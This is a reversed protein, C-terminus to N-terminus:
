NGSHYLMKSAAAYMVPSSKITHKVALKAAELREAVRGRASMSFSGSYLRTEQDCWDFKYAEDGVTFDLQECDHSISWDFAECLALLGPSTQAFEGGKYTAIFYHLRKHWRIAFILAVAQGGCDLSFLEVDDSETVVTALFAAVGPDDFIHRKGARQLDNKKLELLEDLAARKEMESYLPRFEVDGLRDLKDRKRKLKRRTKSSRKTRAFEDFSGFPRLDTQYATPTFYPANCIAMMPNASFGIIDPQKVLVVADVGDLSALVRDWLERMNDPTAAQIFSEAMLPAHYDCVPEGMDWAINGFAATRHIVLPLLFVLDGRGDRLGLILPELDQTRGITDHWVSLWGHSQFPTSHAHKELELWDAAIAAFSTHIEVKLNSLGGHAIYRDAPLAQLAM